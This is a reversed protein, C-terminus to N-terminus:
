FKRGYAFVEKFYYWRKISNAFLKCTELSYLPKLSNKIIKFDNKFM